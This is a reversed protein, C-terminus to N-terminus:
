TRLAAVLSRLEEDIQGPDRLTQAIEARLTERLRRRLRHVAVKVAGETQGLARAADVQTLDTPSGMLWPKLTQFLEGRGDQICDRQLSDLARALIALAWERDFNVDPASEADDAVELGADVEDEYEAPELAQPAIGAGRKLRQDAKRRDMLFHKLCGWLYSRFRGKSPDATGFGNGSLVRAFFEQTLERAADVTRGEARLFRLVPDYYLACMESLATKAEPTTGHSALVLTWRTTRCIDASPTSSKPIPDFKM